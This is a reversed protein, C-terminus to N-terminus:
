SSAASGLATLDSELGKRVMPMMLSMMIWSLPNSAKAEMHMAALAGSPHPNVELRTVFHIGMSRSEVTYSRPPDFQTIELILAAEKGGMKRVENWRTGKGVPGTTLM